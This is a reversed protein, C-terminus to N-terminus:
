EPAETLGKGNSLAKSIYVGTAAKEITGAKTRASAVSAPLQSTDVSVVRTGRPFKATLRNGSEIKIGSSFKSVVSEGSKPAIRAVGGVFELNFNCTTREGTKINELVVSVPYFTNTYTWYTSM